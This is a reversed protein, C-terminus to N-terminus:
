LVPPLAEHVRRLEELLRNLVQELWATAEELGDLNGTQGMGELREAALALEPAALSTATGKLTHAAARLGRADGATAAALVQRLQKPGDTLFLGILEHLLEEDGGVQHLMTARDFVPSDPQPPATQPPARGYLGLVDDIAQQVQRANIPRSLYGDMGAQLCEEKDGVLAHATLALIPVARGSAAQWARIHATAEYGGMVPMQVDMLILDFREREVAQVAELGNAVLVPQHGMKELLREALKQNVPNDEAVLIRLGRGGKNDGAGASESLRAPLRAGLLGTIADMLESQKVPKTLYTTVGLERCRAVDAHRDGSSLMLITSGVLHPRERIQAALEFGDVDPMCVDLLVLPFPQGREAARELEALAIRAGAALTPKMRWSRLVEDMIRRNTANDDVVLVPLNELSLPRRPLLRSPTGPQLELRATFHFTSGQGVTSEAWIRGGMMGVLRSTIALGLGTGGYKRTTSNDAQTFPEFILPLKDAPIGIGTDNVAFHLVCFESHPVSLGSNEEKNPGRDEANQKEVRVVVEGHETFKLANGVLNVLIQRVRVVDGRVLDPVDPAVQCALELGKAHARLSLTKLTDELADRLCFDIPELDLKGAEIKSFDLVDNVVTLLSDASLKAMQLYERQEATLQTDLLLETMGLVGNMPTRIEHSMNALFESKARNAAEAAEKAQRLDQEARRRETVDRVFATFLPPSGNRGPLPTLALEIPFEHGDAHLATTEIRQGLLPGKGTALFRAVEDEHHQRAAPPVILESLPRGIVESRAYGFTKEAAPNFEAVNGEQDMIIIADLATVVIMRTRAESEKLQEVSLALRRANEAQLVQAAELESNARTLEATRETVRGELTRHSEGLADAMHNFATSLAALEDGGKEPLRAAATPDAAVKAMIPAAGRLRRNVLRNFLVHILGVLLVALGAFIGLVNWVIATQSERIDRSPVVVMLAAAAEGEQWGYGHDAGYRQVLEPPASDPSGHCTLCEKHVTIPRAVFFEERGERERFGSQENLGPEQRFREVVAREQDDARNAPNLPNLAAERFSYDPLRQRLFDFTGRAVFTASDAEFILPADPGPFAKRVAPSLVKRAYDRCSEGFCLVEDARAQLRQRMATRQHDILFVATAGLVGALLLLVAGSFKVGLKV